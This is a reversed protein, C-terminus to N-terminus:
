SGEARPPGWATALTPLHVVALAALVGAAAVGALYPFGALPTAAAQSLISGVDM